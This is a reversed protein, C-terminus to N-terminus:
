FITDTLLPQEATKVGGGQDHNNDDGEAQM